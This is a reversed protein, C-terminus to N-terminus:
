ADSGGCVVPWKREGHRPPDRRRRSQVGKRSRRDIATVEHYVNFDGHPNRWAQSNPEEYNYQPAVQTVEVRFVKAQYMYYQRSVSCWGCDSAAVRVSAAASLALSARQQPVERSM